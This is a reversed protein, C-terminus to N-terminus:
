ATVLCWWRRRRCRLISVVWWCRILCWWRRSRRGLLCRVLCMLFCQTRSRCRRRCGTRFRRRCRRRISRSVGTSAFRVEAHDLSVLPPADVAARDVVIGSWDGLAPSTTTSDRNTDGGVSDDRISTFVVPESETGVVSLSGLVTLRRSQAAKVVAGAGVTVAVGAAITVDCDLVHVADNTWTEDASITGCHTIVGPETAVVVSESPDSENGSMDVATVTYTYNESAAGTDDVFETGVVPDPGVRVPSGFAGFARYVRYGALDDAIVPSWTLTVRGPEALAGLGQPVPPATVDAGFYRGYVAQPLLLPVDTSLGYFVPAAGDVYWGGFEPRFVGRDASSDAGYDAPVPVDSSLGVFVPAQGDVYWGGFEPRFVARDASGDGDFDAPVPVDGPLGYFVPAQGDVYWGGFEPRFVAVDTAGDGDFDAPVPVDTAVGLYKTAQGDIFWVGDRFVAVDTAGDGDYDAPVPVDGPEGFFVPAQGSVYWAGDRFVAADTTGDGDYDGPVPVDGALGLFQTPQGDIYWGGVEPRFVARDSSGDGNFDFAITPVGGLLVDTSEVVTSEVIEEVTSEVVEEVTSEVVTSEVVTSPVSSPEVVTSEVVEEVTSEAVTSPVSSPEVVDEVTSEAVTSPVSSPEEEVVPAAVDGDGRGSDAQPAGAASVNAPLVLTGALMAVVVGGAAVRGRGRGRGRVVSGGKGMVLRRLDHGFRDVVSGSLTAAVRGGMAAVAVVLLVFRDGMSNQFVALALWAAVAVSAPDVPRSASRRLSSLSAAILPVFAVLLVIGGAALLQLMVNHAGQLYESGSGFVPRDLFRSWTSGLLRWRAGNSEAVNAQSFPTLAFLRDIAPIRVGLVVLAVGSAAAGAFAGVIWRVRVPRAVVRAVLLGALVLVAARSGSAGIGGILIALTAVRVGGPVRTSRPRFLVLAVAILTFAALQNPHQALGTERGAYSLVGPFTLSWGGIASVSAVAASCCASVVLLDVVRRSALVGDRTAVVVLVFSALLSVALSIGFLRGDASGQGAALAVLLTCPVLVLPGLSRVARLGAAPGVVILAILLLLDGAALWSAPRLGTWGSTLVAAASLFGFVRARGSGPGARRIRPESCPEGSASM